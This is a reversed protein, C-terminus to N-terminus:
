PQHIGYIKIKYRLNDIAVTEGCEFLIGEPVELSIIKRDITHPIIIKTGGTIRFTLANVPKFILQNCKVAM